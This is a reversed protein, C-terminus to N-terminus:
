RARRGTAAVGGWVPQSTGGHPMRSTSWAWRPRSRSAHRSPGPLRAQQPSISRCAGCGPRAPRPRLGLCTRTSRIDALCVSTVPPRASVAGVRAHLPVNTRRRRSAEGNSRNTVSKTAKGQGRPREAQMGDSWQGQRQQGSRVRETRAHTRARARARAHTHRMCALTRKVTTHRGRFLRAGRECEPPPPATARGCWCHCPLGALLLRFMRGPCNLQSLVTSSAQLEASWIM